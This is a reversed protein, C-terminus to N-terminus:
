LNPGTNTTREESKEIQVEFEYQLNPDIQSEDVSKATKEITAFKLTAFDKIQGIFEAKKLDNWNVIDKFFNSIAKSFKCLSTTFTEATTKEVKVGATDFAMVKDALTQIDFTQVICSAVKSSHLLESEIEIDQAIREKQLLPKHYAEEGLKEKGAESVIEGRKRVVVGKETIFKKAILPKENMFDLVANLATKAEDPLQKQGVTLTKQCKEFIGEIANQRGFNKERKYAVVLEAMLSLMGEELNGKEGKVFREIRASLINGIGEANETTIEDVIGKNTLLSFLPDKTALAVNLSGMNNQIYNSNELILKFEEENLSTAYQNFLEVPLKDLKILEILLDAVINGAKASKSNALLTKIYKEDDQMKIAIAKIISQESGWLGSLMGSGKSPKFKDNLKTFPFESQKTLEIIDDVDLIGNNLLDGINHEALVSAKSAFDEIDVKINNEKFYEVADKGAIKINMRFVVGKVSGQGGDLQQALLIKVLKKLNNSKGKLGELLKAISDVGKKSGLLKSESNMCSLGKIVANMENAVLKLHKTNWFSVAWKEKIAKKVSQELNKLIIVFDKRAAHKPIESFIKPDQFFRKHCTLIDERSVTGQALRDLFGTFEEARNKEEQM